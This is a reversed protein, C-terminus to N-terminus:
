PATFQDTIIDVRSQAEADFPDDWTMWLAMEDVEEERLIRVLETLYAPDALPWNGPDGPQADPLESGFRYWVYAIVPLGSQEAKEIHAPLWDALKWWREPELPYYDAHRVRAYTVVTIADYAPTLRDNYVAWIEDWRQKRELLTAQTYNDWLEPDDGREKAALGVWLFPDGVPSYLAIKLHAALQRIHNIVYLRAEIAADLEDHDISWYHGPMWECDDVIMADLAVARMVKDYARGGPLFAADIQAKTPPPTYPTHNFDNNVIVVLPEFEGPYATHLDQHHTHIVRPAGGGGGGLPTDDTHDFPVVAVGHVHTQGAAVAALLTDRADDKLYLRPLTGEGWASIVVPSENSGLADIDNATLEYGANRELLLWDPRDTRLLALGRAVTAVAAEPNLGSNSDDGDPSVFVLRSDAAPRPAQGTQAHICTAALLMLLAALWRPAHTPTPKPM